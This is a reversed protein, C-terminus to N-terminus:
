TIGRRRLLEEIDALDGEGAESSRSATRSPEVQGPPAPQRAGIGRGRMTRSTLELGIAVGLLAVGTWVISSFVFRTMFRSIEIGIRGVMAGLGSMALGAPVLAIGLWRVGDAAGRRRWAFWAVALLAASLALGVIVWPSDRVM